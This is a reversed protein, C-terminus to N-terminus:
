RSRGTLIKATIRRYQAPRAVYKDWGLAEDREELVDAVIEEIEEELYFPRLTECLERGINFLSVSRDIEGDPKCVPHKGEFVRRRYRSLYGRIDIDRTSRHATTTQEQNHSSREADEADSKSISITPVIPLLSDLDEPRYTEDHHEVIQVNPAEGYLGAYDHNRSGPVRLLQTLDWGSSDAGTAHALRKNMAEAVSPSVTDSLRWYLHYRGPSSEVVLTPRPVFDELLNGDDAWLCKVPAAYEKKRRRDNLLHVCIYVNRGRDSQWRTYGVIDQLDEPFKFFRDEVNLLRGKNVEGEKGAPREGSFLSIHGAQEGFIHRLYEEECTISM